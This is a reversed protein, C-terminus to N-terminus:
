RDSDNESLLRNIRAQLAREEASARNKTKIENFAGVLRHREELDAPPFLKTLAPIGFWLAVGVGVATLGAAWPDVFNMLGLMAGLAGVLSGMFVALAYLRAGGEPMPWPFGRGRRLPLCGERDFFEAADPGFSEGVLPLLREHELANQSRAYRAVAEAVARSRDLDSPSAM